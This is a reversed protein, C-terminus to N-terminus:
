IVDHEEICVTFEVRMWTKVTFFGKLLLFCVQKTAVVSWKQIDFVEQSKTKIKGQITNTIKGWKLAQNHLSKWSIFCM